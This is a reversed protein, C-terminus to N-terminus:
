EEEDVVAWEGADDRVSVVNEAEDERREEGGAGDLVEDGGVGGLEAGEEAGPVAEGPVSSM